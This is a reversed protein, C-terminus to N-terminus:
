SHQTFCSNSGTLNPAIGMIKATNAVIIAARLNNPIIDAKM